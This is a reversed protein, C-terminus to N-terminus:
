LVQGLAFYVSWKRDTEIGRPRQGTVVDCEWMGGVLRGAITDSFTIYRVAANRTARHMWRRPRM